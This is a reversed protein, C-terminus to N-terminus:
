LLETDYNKNEEEEVQLNELKSVTEFKDYFDVLKHMNTNIDSITIRKKGQFYHKLCNILVERSDKDVECGNM